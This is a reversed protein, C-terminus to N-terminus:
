ESGNPLYPLFDYLIPGMYQYNAIYVKPQETATFAYHRETVIEIQQVTSTDPWGDLVIWHQFEGVKGDIFIRSQANLVYEQGVIALVSNGSAQVSENLTIRAPIPWSETQITTTVPFLNYVSQLVQGSATHMALQIEYWLPVGLAHTVTPLDLRVDSGLHESLITHVHNHHHLLITWVYPTIADLGSTGGERVAYFRLQDGGQYLSRVSGSLNEQVILAPAGSYVRIMQALTESPAGQPDSVQLTALYDGDQLYTHTASPITTTMEDGDGFSLNYTLPEGDDDHSGDATFNVKLPATGGTSSLQWKAEPPLNGSESYYLLQIRGEYISLMYIGEPTALMDVLGAFGTAFPTIEANPDDIDTMDIWNADFDAFFLKGQYEAPFQAHEYFALATLAAGGELPHIYTLLPDTFQSPAPTCDNAERVYVPCKGERIPWGYNAGAILPNLEEWTEEGVDAIYLSRDSPRQIIRFPSRLGLAYIEPRAGDVGIFPNDGPIDYGGERRPRIRLV